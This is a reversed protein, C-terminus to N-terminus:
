LAGIPQHGNTFILHRKEQHPDTFALTSPIVVPELILPSQLLYSFFPPRVVNLHLAPADAPKRRRILAKARGSNDTPARERPAISSTRILPAWSQSAPAAGLSM